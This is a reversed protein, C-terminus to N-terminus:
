EPTNADQEEELTEVITDYDRVAAALGTLDQAVHQMRRYYGYRKTDGDADNEIEALERAYKMVRDLASQRVSDLPHTVAGCTKCTQNKM